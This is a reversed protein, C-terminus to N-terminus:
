AFFSIAAIIVLFVMLLIFMIALVKNKGKYAKVGNLLSLLAGLLYMVPFLAEKKEPGSFYIIALLLIIFCIMMNIINLLMQCKIKM